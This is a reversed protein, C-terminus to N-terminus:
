TVARGFTVLFSSASSISVAAGLFAVWPWSIMRSFNKDIPKQQGHETVKRPFRHFVQILQGVIRQFNPNAAIQLLITGGFRAKVQGKESETSQADSLHRHDHGAGIEFHSSVGADYMELLRSNAFCAWNQIRLTKFTCKFLCFRQSCFNKPGEVAVTQCCHFREVKGRKKPSGVTM